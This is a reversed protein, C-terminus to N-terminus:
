FLLKEEEYERLSFHVCLFAEHCACNLLNLLFLETGIECVKSSASSPLDPIGSAEKEKSTRIDVLVVDGENVLTNLAAASPLDDSYGRHQCHLM